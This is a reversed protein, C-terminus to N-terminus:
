VEIRRREPVRILISMVAAVLLLSAAAPEPVSTSTASDISSAGGLTNGFNAVWFDYDLQDVVGDPVGSPGTGDAALGTGSQGASDRWVTYDAAAAVGNGNYDGPVIVFHRPAVVLNSKIGSDSAIVDELDTGDLNARQISVGHNIWYLKTNPVDLAIAHPAVETVVPEWNSGDLDARSIRGAGVENVYVKDLAYDLAISFSNSLGAIVDQPFTGELNSRGLRGFFNEIWYVKGEALDLAIDRPEPLASFSQIAEINAGDYDGRYLQHSNSEAWYFKGAGPDIAFQSVSRSLTVVDTVGSGDLESRKITTQSSGSVETWYIKGSVPEYIVDSIPSVSAVIQQILSTDSNARNITNSNTSWFLISGNARPSLSGSVQVFVCLAAVLRLSHRLATSLSREYTVDRKNRRFRRLEQALTTALIKRLWAAQDAGTKGRFQHEARCAALLTQQVVDTPDLKARVEASIQQPGADTFVRPVGGASSVTTRRPAVRLGGISLSALRFLISRSFVFHTTVLVDKRFPSLCLKSRPSRLNLWDGATKVAFFGRGPFIV